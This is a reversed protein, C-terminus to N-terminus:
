IGQPVHRRHQIDNLFIGRPGLNLGFWTHAAFTECLPEDVEMLGARVNALRDWFEQTGTM